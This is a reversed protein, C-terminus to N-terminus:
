CKPHWPLSPSLYVAQGRLGAAQAAAVLATELPTLTSESDSQEGIAIEVMKDIALNNSQVHTVLLRVSNSDWECTIHKAM